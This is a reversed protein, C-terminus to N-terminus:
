PARRIVDFSALYGAIDDPNFNPGAFAGISRSGSRDAAVPLGLAADFLDPRFVAMATKLAEPSVRTQGWRAM